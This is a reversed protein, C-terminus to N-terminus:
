TDLDRQISQRIQRLFFGPSWIEHHVNEWNWHGYRTFQTGSIEESLAPGSDQGPGVISPKVWFFIVVSCPIYCSQPSYIKM